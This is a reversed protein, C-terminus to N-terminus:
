RAHRSKSPLLRKQERGVPLGAAENIQAQLENSHAQSWTFFALLVAPILMWASAFVLALVFSALRSM